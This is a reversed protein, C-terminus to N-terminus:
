INILYFQYDVECDNRNIALKRVMRVFDNQNKAGDRLLCVVVSNVIIWRFLTPYLNNGIPEIGLICIGHDM